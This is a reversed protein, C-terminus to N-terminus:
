KKSEVPAALHRYAYIALRATVFSPRALIGQRGSFCSSATGAIAGYAEDFENTGWMALFLRDVANPAHSIVCADNDDSSFSGVDIGSVTKKEQRLLSKAFAGTVYVLNLSASTKVCKNNAHLFEVIRSGLVPAQNALVLDRAESPNKTALCNGTEDIGKLIVPDLDAPPPAPIPAQALCSLSSLAVGIRIATKTM